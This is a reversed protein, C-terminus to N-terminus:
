RKGEALYYVIQNGKTKISKQRKSLSHYVSTLLINNTKWGESINLFVQILMFKYYHKQKKGQTHM